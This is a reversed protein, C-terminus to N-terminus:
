ISETVLEHPDEITYQVEVQSIDIGSTENQVTGGTSDEAQKDDHSQDERSEEGQNAPPDTTTLATGEEPIADLKGSIM